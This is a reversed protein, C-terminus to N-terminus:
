GRRSATPSAHRRDRGGRGGEADLHDRGAGAQARDARADVDHREVAHGRRRSSAGGAGGEARGRDAGQHRGEAALHRPDRPQRRRAADQGLATVEAATIAPCCSSCSSTSTSSARADAGGRPLLQSIGARVLRERDQRARHLRARLVRAMWKKRATSSAPASGSSARGSPRSRSRARAGRRDQRGPVNAGLSVTEVDKSLGGGGIGAGLFKADAAALDRRLRDNLM